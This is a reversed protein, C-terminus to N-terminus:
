SLLKELDLILILKGAKIGIGKLYNSQFGVSSETPDEIENDDLLMTQSADDVHFAMHKDGYKMVILRSSSLNLGKKEIGFENELDFVPITKGRFNIIGKINNPMQPIITVEEYPAIEQINEIPIGYTVCNLSFIVYQKEM